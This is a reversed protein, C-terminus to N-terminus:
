STEHSYVRKWAFPPVVRNDTFVEDTLAGTWTECHWM